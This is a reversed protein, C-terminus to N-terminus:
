GTGCSNGISVLMMGDIGSFVPDEGYLPLVVFNCRIAINFQAIATYCTFLLLKIFDMQLEHITYAEMRWGGDVGSM